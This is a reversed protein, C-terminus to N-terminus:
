SAVAEESLRKINALGTEVGGTVPKPNLYHITSGLIGFMDFSYKVSSVNEEVPNIEIVAHFKMAGHLVSGEYKVVEYEKVDTLIVPIRPIPGDRMVFEFATGTALTGPLNEIHTIDHDWTEWKMPAFCAKWITAPSAKIECDQVYPAM